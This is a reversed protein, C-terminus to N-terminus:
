IRQVFNTANQCDHARFLSVLRVELSMFSLFGGIVGIAYTAIKYLLLGRDWSDAEEEFLQLHGSLRNHAYDEGSLVGFKSESEWDELCHEALGEVGKMEKMSEVVNHLDFFKSAKADGGKSKKKKKKENKAQLADAASEMAQTESVDPCDFIPVKTGIKILRETLLSARSSVIDYNGSDSMELDDQAPGSDQKVVAGSDPTPAAASASASAPDQGAAAEVKGAAAIKKGKAAMKEDSYDGACARYLFMERVVEGAAHRLALIKPGYNYEHQLAMIISLFGPLVIIGVYLLIVTFSLDSIRVAGSLIQEMQNAPLVSGAITVCLTTTFSLVLKALLMGMDPREMDQAACQYDCYRKRAQLLADDKAQLSQLVRKLAYISGKIQHINVNGKEVLDRVMLNVVNANLTPPFGCEKCLKCTEEYLQFKASYRGVWLKPLYDSLRRSGQLVVIPVSEKVAEAMHQLVAFGGGAVVFMRRNGMDSELEKKKKGRVKTEYINSALETDPDCIVRSLRAAVRSYSGKVQISHTVRSHLIGKDFSKGPADKITYKEQATALDVAVQGQTCINIVPGDFEVFDLATEILKSNASSTMYDPIVIAANHKKANDAVVVLCDMVQSVVVPDDVDALEFDPDTKEQFGDINQEAYEKARRQDVFKKSLIKDQDNECRGAIRLSQAKKEDPSKTQV